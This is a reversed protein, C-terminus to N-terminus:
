RERETQVALKVEPDSTDALDLVTKGSKDRIASDAGYKKLLKILEVNGKKVALFLSTWSDRKRPQNPNAGYQLLLEILQLNSHDGSVAAMLCTQGLRDVVELNAGQKILFKALPHNGKFSAYMLASWGNDKKQFDIEAGLELAKKAGPLDGSEACQIFIENLSQAEATISLFLIGLFIVKYTFTSLRFLSLAKM